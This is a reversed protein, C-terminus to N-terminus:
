GSTPLSIRPTSTANEVCPWARIGALYAEPSEKPPLIVQVYRRLDREHRSLKAADAAALSPVKYAIRSGKPLGTPVFLRGSGIVFLGRAADFRWHPKLKLDVSERAPRAPAEVAPYM